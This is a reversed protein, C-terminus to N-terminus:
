SPRSRQASSTAADFSLDQAALDVETVLGSQIQALYFARPMLMDAGALRRLTACTSAFSQGSFGLFPNVAVFSALPWLPAVRACATDIAARVAEDYRSMAVASTVHRSM